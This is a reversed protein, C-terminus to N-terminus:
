KASAEKLAMSLERCGLTIAKGVEEPTEDAKARVTWSATVPRGTGRAVSGSITILLDRETM